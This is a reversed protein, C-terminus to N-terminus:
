PSYTVHADIVNEIDVSQQGKKLRGYILFKQMRTEASRVICLEVGVYLIYCIKADWISGHENPKGGMCNVM